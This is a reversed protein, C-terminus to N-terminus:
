NLRPAQHRQLEARWERNFRSGQSYKYLRVNSNLGKATRGKRESPLKGGGLLERLATGEWLAKAFAPDQVSFRENTRVAEGRKAAPSPELKIPSHPGTLLALFAQTTKKSFLPDITLVGPLISDDLAPLPAHLPRALPPWAIAAPQATVAATRKPKSM